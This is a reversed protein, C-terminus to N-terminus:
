NQGAAAVRRRVEDFWNLVVNLQRPASQEEAEKILLFRRGDPAIDYSIGPVNVYNGVFLLRPKGATFGGETNVPVAMWRRGNRYYLEDGGPAWVPEEGGETSIPWKGGPGPFPVVYVEYRGSEDSIYAVWRGNPSFSPGWQSFPMRIFPRPKRDGEVPLVWIDEDTASHRDSFLLDRGDPSWSYPVPRSANDGSLLLEAEGSGDARKLFLGSKGEGIASRYVVRKGDPSWTVAGAGGESTIRTLTGRAIDYIWLNGGIVVVLRDGDPSFKFTGYQRIPAGLPEANGQRDVWVLRRDTQARGPVYVMSGNGAFTFQAAGYFETRVGELVPVPNGKVELRAPDFAVAYLTGGRVFVLHGTPLYRAGTGGELLIKVEQTALSLAGIRPRGGRHITLLVDSGGPLIEPWVLRGLVERSKPPTVQQPNGGAASVRSLSNGEIRAFFITDDTGWSAGYPNRAECVTVPEGGLLSVKKLNTETFFGVWQSDPSFFPNFAGETGPIPTAEFQDMPRLYLQTTGSHEATYVLRTGDPSLALSPRGLGLPTSRAVALPQGEPLSIVLRRAPQPTAPGTQWPKWILLGALVVLLAGTVAGVLPGAWRSRTQVATEARVVSDSASSVLHRLDVGVEKASQYRDEPDKELCKLIIRELEPSVRVNLARPTVPQQHLIADTLRTALEERFPRQGTSIEYLLVGLAHLDTRADVPEGQLQEPAMYPLTGVAGSTASFSETSSTESVPRLLKALGFDLVKAQGRPTVMVNAPKLDRHIVGQEHAEVLAEAVQEGLRAVQRGTLAANSAKEALTEGAVYEMVLFDIGDETGFDYVTAINPHNLKSLALAEKRFRKRAAEDALTKAPLVKLAVDRELREDHARYVEGMGGAGLKATVRYHSITKGVM